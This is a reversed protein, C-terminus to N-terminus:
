SNFITKNCRANIITYQWDYIFCLIVKIEFIRYITTHFGSRYIAIYFNFINIFGTLQFVNKIDPNVNRLTVSSGNARAGKLIGLLIRLGSSAIYELGKCEIIVDKGNSTYLPKLKEEAEVAAATDMEGELTAILKGEIEEVKANM